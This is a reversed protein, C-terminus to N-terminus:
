YRGGHYTGLRHTCLGLLLLGSRNPEAKPEMKKPVFVAPKDAYDVHVEGSSLMIRKSYRLAHRLRERVIGESKACEVISEYTKGDFIIKRKGGM